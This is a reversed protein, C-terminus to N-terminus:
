PLLINLRAPNQIRLMSGLNIRLV